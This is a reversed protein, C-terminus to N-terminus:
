VGDTLAGSDVVFAAVADSLRPADGDVVGDGDRDVDEVEDRDDDVDEVGDGDGDNNADTEAAADGGDPTDEEPEAMACEWGENDEDTGTETMRAPDKLEVAVLVSVNTSKRVSAAENEADHVGAREFASCKAVLKVVEMSEEAVPETDVVQEELPEAM